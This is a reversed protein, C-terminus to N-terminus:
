TNEKRRGGEENRSGGTWRRLQERSKRKVKENGKEKLGQERDGKRGKERRGEGKEKRMKGKEKRRGRHEQGMGGKCDRRVREIEEEKGRDGHGQQTTVKNRSREQKETESRRQKDIERDGQRETRVGAWAGRRSQM